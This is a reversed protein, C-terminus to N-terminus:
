DVWSKKQRTMIGMRLVSYHERSRDSDFEDRVTPRDKARPGDSHKDETREHVHPPRPWFAIEVPDSVPEIWSEVLRAIGAAVIASVSSLLPIRQVAALLEFPTYRM